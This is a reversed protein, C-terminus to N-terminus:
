GSSTTRVQAVICNPRGDLPDLITLLVKKGRGLLPTLDVISLNRDGFLPADQPDAVVKDMIGTGVVGIAQRDRQIGLTM